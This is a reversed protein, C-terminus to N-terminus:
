VILGEGEGEEKEQGGGGDGGGSGGGGGGGGGGGLQARQALPSPLACRSYTRLTREGAMATSLDFCSAQHLPAPSALAAVAGGWAFVGAEFSAVSQRPLGRAPEACLTVRFAYSASSASSSRANLAQAPEVVVRVLVDDWADADAAAAHSGPQQQEDSSTASTLSPCTTSSALLALAATLRATLAGLAEAEVADATSAWAAAPPPPNDM